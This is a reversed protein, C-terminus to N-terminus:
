VAELPMRQFPLHCTEGPFTLSALLGRKEEEAMTSSGKSRTAAKLFAEGIAVEILRFLELHGPAYSNRLYIM